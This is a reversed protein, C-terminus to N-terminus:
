SVHVAEAVTMVQDVDGDKLAALPTREGLLPKPTVFWVARAFDSPMPLAKLVAPLGEVVGEPGEPDFQWLPFRLAGNDRIALLTGAEARQNATQRNRAGLLKAVASATLAHELLKRRLEFRRLLNNAYASAFADASPLPEGTLESVTEEAPPGKVAYAAAEIAQTLEDLRQKPLVEALVEVGDHARQKAEAKTRTKRTPAATLQVFTDIDAM